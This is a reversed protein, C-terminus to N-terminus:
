ARGIRGEYIQKEENLLAYCEFFSGVQMLLLTKPGYELIYKQTISLYETIITM